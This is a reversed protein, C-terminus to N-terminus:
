LGPCNAAPTYGNARAEEASQFWVKNEEKIRGAGPCSPLHYKTGSRSGVYTGSTAPPATPAGAAAAPLARGEKSLAEIWLRDDTAANGLERGTLVGLGYAASLALVAVLIVLLDARGRLSGNKGGRGREPISM